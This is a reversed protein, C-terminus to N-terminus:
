SSFAAILAGFSAIHTGEDYRRRVRAYYKRHLLAAPNSKTYTLNRYKENLLGRLYREAFQARNLGEAPNPPLYEPDSHLVDFIRRYERIRPDRPHRTVIAKNGLAWTELCFHQVIIRYEVQSALSDIFESVECYKDSLTMEESDIAVVLRDFMSNGAVDAVGAEIVDFYSPYGGGAVIFVSNDSVQDISPVVSLRANVMPVWHSYVRKEGVPGEVVLYVNV